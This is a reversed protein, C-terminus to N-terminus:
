RRTSATTIGSDPYRFSRNGMFFSKRVAASSKMKPVRRPAQDGSKRSSRSPRRRCPAPVPIASGRMNLMMMSCAGKSRSPTMTPAPMSTHAKAGATPGEMPPYMTLRKPQRMIKQATSGSSRTEKTRPPRDTRWDESIRMRGKSAPPRRYRAMEKVQRRM